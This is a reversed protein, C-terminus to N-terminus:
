SGTAATLLSDIEGDYILKRPCSYQFKLATKNQDTGAMGTTSGDGDVKMAPAMEDGMLYWVGNRDRVLLVLNRDKIANEFGFMTANMKARTIDLEYLFSKGGKEGQDTIKLEGTEDTFNLEYLQCGNAMALDGNWKGADEFTLANNGTPAPLQPWTGVESAYGFLIRDVIGARNDTDVCNAVAAISALAICKSDAM